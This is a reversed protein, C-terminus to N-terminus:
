GAGGPMFFAAQEAVQGTAMPVGGLVKCGRAEAAQMLETVRVAIIDVVDTSADLKAPEVPLADGPFLGLSTSNIVMDYGAPEPDVAKAETAPFAAALDSVLREARAPTRNNIHLCAVGTQCLAFAIARGAGGAGLMLVRRGAIAFGDKELAKVLGIGDFIEGILRGDEFRVANVAEVLQAQPGLEDCLAAMTEKHPITLVVGRYNSLLALTRVVRELDPPKVHMPTLFLDYGIGAFAPNVFSPAKVHSVPDALLALMGTKGSPLKTM